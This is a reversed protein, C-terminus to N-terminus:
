LREVGAARCARTLDKDLTALPLNMRLALELYMADYVSLGHTYALPLIKAWVPNVSEHDIEIPLTELIKQIRDWDSKAIRKRRTAVLIVNAVEVPWIVPVIALDNELSDRLKDTRDTAEDPFLWSITVSCDLVFPM